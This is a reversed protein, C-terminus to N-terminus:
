RGVRELSSSCRDRSPLGLPSNFIKALGSLDLRGLGSFRISRGRRGRRLESDETM